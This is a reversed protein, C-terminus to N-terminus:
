FDEIKNTLSWNHAIYRVKNQFRNHINLLVKNIYERLPELQEIIIFIQERTKSIYINNIIDTLTLIGMNYVLYIERNKERKKDRKKLELIWKDESLEKMLYLIRLDSNDIDEVGNNNPYRCLEIERIHNILRHVLFVINIEDKNTFFVSLKSELSRLRPLINCQENLPIDGQVRPIIDSNQTRQWQYYHPNHVTGKEIKGTKWSFPTKCQTCWMQDCGELKYIHISCYPCQKTEKNLLNVTEVVGIDCVHNKDDKENKPVHCKNCVWINCIGCKWVSSVFGRCDNIPCNRVFVRSVNNCVINIEDSEDNTPILSLKKIQKRMDWINNKLELIKNELEDIIIKRKRKDIELSVLHQTYPLMCKEREFLLVARHKRYEDNHFIAPTISSIFDLGWITKCGMCTPDLSSSSLLFTRLCKFCVNLNCFPCIKHRYNKHISSFDETCIDCKEKVLKSFNYM